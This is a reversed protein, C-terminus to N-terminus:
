RFRFFKDLARTHTRLILCDIVIRKFNLRLFHLRLQNGAPRTSIGPRDIEFAHSLNGFRHSRIEEDVHGVNGSKDSGSHM